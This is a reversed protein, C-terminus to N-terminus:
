RVIDVSKSDHDVGPRPLEEGAQNVLELGQAAIADDGADEVEFRRILYEYATLLGGTPRV